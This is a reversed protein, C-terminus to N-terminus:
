RYLLDHLIILGFLQLIMECATTRIDLAFAHSLWESELRASFISVIEHGVTSSAGPVVTRYLLTCYQVVLITGYTDRRGVPSPSINYSREVNAAALRHRNM